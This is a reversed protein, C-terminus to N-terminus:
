KNPPTGEANSMIADIQIVSNSPLSSVGIVTLAPLSDNFYSRLVEELACLDDMDKLQINLKVIDDMVHDINEVIAKINEFCQIAQEKTGSAVIKGISPDIPLQASINNYHSFAVSQTSLANLPAKETNTAKIVIGHRDEVLQPPTGDGHSVTADIQVLADLALGEVVVSSRAPLYNVARAISSDPFFTKYVEDVAELDELKTIHINTKVIDDMPVDISELITKINRLCQQTQEKIGGTVVNGSKPEIPLQASIHNYHSFAVTQSSLPTIPANVSNRTLKVLDCPDQPYTGEGNSIVADMQVLAGKMPLDAVALSTYTPRHLPFFSAYVENVKDLDTINKLYVNIRVVDSMTHEISNVIMKINKLCQKAQQEIGGVILTKTAPDIPLQASINNYHSFAVSQTSIPSVPAKETNRSVKIIRNDM